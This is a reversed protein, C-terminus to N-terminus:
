ISRQRSQTQLQERLRDRAISLRSHLTGENVNLVQAIEAVPMDHYYRLIVPLRHKEDLTHVANWLARDAENHIVTEEPHPEREGGTRFLAQLAEWLRGRAQRKRLRTRCVNVTITHLWTNLSAEGRYSDLAGLASLLADQAAEEAESPDELISLALRYLPKQFRSVLLEVASEDGERCRSILAATEMPNDQTNM